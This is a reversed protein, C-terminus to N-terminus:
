EVACVLWGRRRGRPRRGRVVRVGLRTWVGCACASHQVRCRMRTAPISQFLRTTPRATVEAHLVSAPRLRDGEVVRRWEVSAPRNYPHMNQAWQSMLDLVQNLTANALPAQQMVLESTNGTQIRVSMDFVLKTCNQYQCYFDFFDIIDTYTNAHYNKIVAWTTNGHVFHKSKYTDIEDIISQSYGSNAENYDSLNKLSCSDLRPRPQRICSLTSSVLNLVLLCCVREHQYVDCQKGDVKPKKTPLLFPTAFDRLCSCTSRDHSAYTVSSNNDLVQLMLNMLFQTSPPPPNPPNITAQKPKMFDQELLNKLNYKDTNNNWRDGYCGMLFMAKHIPSVEDSLSNGKAEDGETGLVQEQIYKYVDVGKPYTESIKDLNIDMPPKSADFQEHEIRYKTLPTRHTIYTNTFVTNNFSHLDDVKADNISDDIHELMPHHLIGVSLLIIISTYVILGLSRSCMITYHPNCCSMNLFIKLIIYM